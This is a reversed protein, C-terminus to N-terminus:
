DGGSLPLGGGLGGLSSIGLPSGLRGDYANSEKGYYSHICVKPRNPPEPYISRVCCVKVHQEREAEYNGKPSNMPVWSVSKWHAHQVVQVQVDLSLM